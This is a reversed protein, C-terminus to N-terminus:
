LTAKKDKLAEIITSKEDPRLGFPAWIPHWNDLYQVERGIISTLYANRTKRTDIGCDNLLIEIYEAQTM